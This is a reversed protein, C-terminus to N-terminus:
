FMVFRDVFRPRWSRPQPEEVVADDNAQDQRQSQDERPVTGILIIFVPKQNARQMRMDVTSRKHLKYLFLM